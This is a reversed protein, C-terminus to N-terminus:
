TPESPDIMRLRTWAAGLLVVQFAFSLWVLAAFVAAFGGFVSLAGPLRPALYVFLDTMATLLLGAVLAPLSLARLPVHTNPVVRYLVGVATVVVVVTVLPFGVASIARAADGEPGSSVASAVMAQIASIAIGSVIGGVLLLVSVFGRLLRDLAGRAPARDFVRAIATDLSGYFQSTGWAMGALGVISFAGAHAAADALGDKAIPALPALQGTFGSVLRQRDADAPVLYGLIGVGFLLGTLGAFLAAYALGAALLGGGADEYARLIARARVVPPLALVWGILRHIPELRDKRDTAGDAPAATADARVAARQRVRRPEGAKERTM